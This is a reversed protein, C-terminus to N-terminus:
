TEGDWYDTKHSEYNYGVELLQNESIAFRNKFFVYQSSVENTGLNSFSITDVRRNGNLRLLDSLLNSGQSFETSSFSLSTSITQNWDYTGQFNWGTNDWKGFEELIATNRYQNNIRVGFQSLNFNEFDDSSLFGSAQITLEPIPQWSFKGHLDYFSFTPQASLLLKELVVQNPTPHM